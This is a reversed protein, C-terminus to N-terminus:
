VHRAEMAILLHQSAAAMEETQFAPVNGCTHDDRMDLSFISKRTKM